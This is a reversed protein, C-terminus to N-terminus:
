EKKDKEPYIEESAEMQYRMAPFPIITAERRPLVREKMYVHFLAECIAFFYAIMLSIVVLATTQGVYMGSFLWVVLFSIGFDVIAAALMGIAPLILIDALYAAGTLLLSVIILQRLTVSGFVALFSALIIATYVWKIGLAKMHVLKIVGRKEM